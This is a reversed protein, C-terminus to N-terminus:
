QEQEESEELVGRKLAEFRFYKMLELKIKDSLKLKM